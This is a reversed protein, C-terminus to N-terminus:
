YSSIAKGFFFDGFEPNESNKHEKINFTIFMEAKESKMVNCM